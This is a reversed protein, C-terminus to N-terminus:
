IEMCAGGGGAVWNAKGWDEGKVGGVTDVTWARTMGALARSKAGGAKEGM